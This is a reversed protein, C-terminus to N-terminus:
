NRDNEVVGIELGPSLLIDTLFGVAWQLSTRRESTKGNRVAFMTDPGYGENVMVM